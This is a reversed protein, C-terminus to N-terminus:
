SYAARYHSTGTVCALVMDDVATRNGNDRITTRIIRELLGAFNGREAAASSGAAGGTMIKPNTPPNTLCLSVTCLTTWNAARSRLCYGVPVTTSVKSFWM